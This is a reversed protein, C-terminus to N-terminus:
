KHGKCHTCQIIFFLTYEIIDLNGKHKYNISLFLLICVVFYGSMSLIRCLGYLLLSRWFLCEFNIWLWILQWSITISKNRNNVNVNQIKKWGSLHTVVGVQITISFYFFWFTLLQLIIWIINYISPFIVIYYIYAFAHKKESPSYRLLFM